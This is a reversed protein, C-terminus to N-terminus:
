VIEVREYLNSWFREWTRFATGHNHHTRASFEIQVYGKKIGELFKELSADELIMVEAIKMAERENRKTDIKVYVTNKMKNRIKFELEDFTWNPIPNLDGLGVRKEVEVLWSQYEPTKPVKTHDFHLEIKEENEDIIATFGRESFGAADIDVRLSREKPGYKTLPWGYNAVLYPIVPKKRDRPHPELRFLSILANSATRHTKLELEGYDALAINNEPIGLLDELTNGPGGDRGTRNRSLMIWGRERIESIQVILEGRTYSHTPQSKTSEVWRDLSERKRKM